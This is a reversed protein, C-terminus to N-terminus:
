LDFDGNIAILVFGVKPEEIILPSRETTHFNEGCIRRCFQIEQSRIKKAQSVM